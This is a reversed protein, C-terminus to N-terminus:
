DRKVNQVNWKRGDGRASMSWELRMSSKRHKKRLEDDTIETADSKIPLLSLDSYSSIPSIRFSIEIPSNICLIKNRGGDV